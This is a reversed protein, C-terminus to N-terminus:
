ILKRLFDIRNEYEKRNSDLNTISKSIESISNLIINAAYDIKELSIFIGGFNDECYYLNEIDSKWHKIGDKLTYLYKGDRYLYINKSCFINFSDRDGINITLKYISYKNKKKM